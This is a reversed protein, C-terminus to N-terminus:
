MEKFFFGSFSLFENYKIKSYLKFIKDMKNNKVIERYFIHIKKIIYNKFIIDFINYVSFFHCFYYQSITYRIWSWSLNHISYVKVLRFWPGPVCRHAPITSRISSEHSSDYTGLRTPPVRSRECTIRQPLWRKLQSGCGDSMYPTM